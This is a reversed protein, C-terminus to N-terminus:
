NGANEHMIKWMAYFLYMHFSIIVALVFKCYYLFFFHVKYKTKHRIFIKYKKEFKLYSNTHIMQKNQVVISYM